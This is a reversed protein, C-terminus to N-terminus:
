SLVPSAMLLLRVEQPPQVGAPMQGEAGPEENYLSNIYLNRPRVGDKRGAAPQEPSSAQEAGFANDDFGFSDGAATAENPHAQAWANGAPQKQLQQRQQQQEQMLQQQAQQRQQEQQQALQSASSYSSLPPAPARDPKRNPFPKNTNLEQLRFCITSDCANCHCPM